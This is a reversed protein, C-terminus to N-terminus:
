FNMAFYAYSDANVLCQEKTIGDERFDSGDAHMYGQEGFDVTDAFRHSAEHIFTRVAQFENGTIYDPKVHIDGKPRKANGGYSTVYGEVLPVIQKVTLGYQKALGKVAVPNVNSAKISVDGNIGNGILVFIANIATIDSQSPTGSLKFYHALLAKLRDAMPGALAAQASAVKGRAATVTKETGKKLSDSLFLERHKLRIGGGSSPKLTTGRYFRKDLLSTSM